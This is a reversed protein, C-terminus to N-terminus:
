KEANISGLICGIQWDQDPNMTTAITRALPIFVQCRNDVGVVVIENTNCNLVAYTVCSILKQSLFYIRVNEIAPRM